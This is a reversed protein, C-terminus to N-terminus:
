TAVVARGLGELLRFTVLLPVSLPLTAVGVGVAMVEIGTRAWWVARHSHGTGTSVELPARKEHSGDTQAPPNM